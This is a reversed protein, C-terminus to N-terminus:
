ARPEAGANGLQERVSQECCSCVYKSVWHCSQGDAGICARSDTCGCEICRPHAERARRALVVEIIFGFWEVSFVRGEADEGFDDSGLWGGISFSPLWGKM